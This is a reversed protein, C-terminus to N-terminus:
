KIVREYCYFGCDVENLYILFDCIGLVWIKWNKLIVLKKFNKFSYYISVKRIGILLMLSDDKNKKEM